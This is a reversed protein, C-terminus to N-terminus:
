ARVVALDAAFSQVISKSRHQSVGPFTPAGRRPFPQGARAARALGPLVDGRGEDHCLWLTRGSPWATLWRAQVADDGRDPAPAVHSM